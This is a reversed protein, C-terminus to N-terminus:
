KRKYNIEKKDSKQTEKKSKNKKDKEKDIYEKILKELQTEKQKSTGEDSKVKKQNFIINIIDNTDLTEKKKKAKNGSYINLLEYFIEKQCYIKYFDRLHIIRSSSFHKIYKLYDLLINIQYKSINNIDYKAVIIRFNSEQGFIEETKALYNKYKEIIKQFLLNIIKRIFLIKFSKILSNIKSDLIKHNINNYIETQNNIENMLDFKVRQEKVEKELGEVKQNLGNIAIDKDNMKKNLQESIENLKKNFSEKMDEFAKQVSEEKENESSNKLSKGDDVKREDNSGSSEKTM